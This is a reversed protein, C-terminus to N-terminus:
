VSERGENGPLPIPDTYRRVPLARPEGSGVENSSSRRTSEFVYAHLTRSEDELMEVIDELASADGRIRKMQAELDAHKVRYADIECDAQVLQQQLYNNDQQLWTNLAIFADNKFELDAIHTRHNALGADAQLLQRQLSANDHRSYTNLGIAEDHEAISSALLCELHHTYSNRSRQIRHTPTISPM